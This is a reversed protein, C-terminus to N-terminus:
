QSKHADPKLAKNGGDYKRQHECHYSVCGVCRQHVMETMTIIDQRHSHSTLPVLEHLHEVFLRCASKVQKNVHNAAVAATSTPVCSMHVIITSDLRHGFDYQMESNYSLYSCVYM